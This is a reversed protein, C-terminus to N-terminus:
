DFPNPLSFFMADWFNLQFYLSLFRRSEDFPNLHGGDPLRLSKKDPLEKFLAPVILQSLSAARECELLAKHQSEFWDAFNYMVVVEWNERIEDTNLKDHPISAWKVDVDYLYEEHKESFPIISLRTAECIELCDIEPLEYPWVNVTLDVGKWIPDDIARAYVDRIMEALMVNVATPMSRMLVDLDRKQYVNKWMMTTGAGYREFDDIVRTYYGKDLALKASLSPSFKNMAGMRTDLLADLEVLIRKNM